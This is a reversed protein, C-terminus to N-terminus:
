RPAAEGVSGGTAQYAKWGAWAMVLSAVLGVLFQLTDFAGLHGFIWDLWSITAIVWFLAAAAGGLLMVLGKPAPLNVTPALQPLLIGGLVILAALVPVSLLSGWDNVLSVIGLVLVVASAIVAMRENSSLKSFDVAPWRLHYRQSGVASRVAVM